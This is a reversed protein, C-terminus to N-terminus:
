VRYENLVEKESMLLMRAASAGMSGEMVSENGFQVSYDGLGKAQVGIVGEQEAARLGSQYARAAARTAVSVIDDPLDEYGHSYTVVVGRVKQVWRYGGLRHLIGYDGLVWDDDVTLTEGDEVVLAVEVVPLQPLFLRTGGRGDLAIVEDEVLTLYQRCYNRIAGTAEVLARQAAALEAPEEIDIQLFAAVDSVSAFTESM